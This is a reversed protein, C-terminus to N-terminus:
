TIHLHVQGFGERLAFESRKRGACCQGTADLLQNADRRWIEVPALGRGIDASRTGMARALNRALPNDRSADLFLLNTSTEREMSRHIVDLQLMEFDLSSADELKADIPVLYNRGSVQLGHGAYFFLGVEAGSLARAFDRVKSEFTAKDLDFGEIVQFEFAALVAVVDAADNKPNSLRPTHQYASNGVVLGVRRGAEAAAVGTLLLIASVLFICRFHQM